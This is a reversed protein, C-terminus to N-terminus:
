KKPRNLPHITKIKDNAPASIVCSLVRCSVDYPTVDAVRPKRGRHYYFSQQRDWSPFEVRRTAGPPIVARVRRVAEHLMRGRMDTYTLSLEIETIERDLRNSVFLSESRSALPKDYGSLRVSEPSVPRITDYLLICSDAPTGGRLAARDPRLKGRLTRDALAPFAGLLSAAALLLSILPRAPGSM